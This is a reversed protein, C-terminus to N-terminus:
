RPCEGCWRFWWHLPPCGSACMAAEKLCSPMCPWSPECGVARICESGTATPDGPYAMSSSHGYWCSCFYVAASALM